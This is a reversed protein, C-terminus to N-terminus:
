PMAASDIPVVQGRSLVVANRLPAEVRAGPWVVCREVRGVGKVVAGRGVLSNALDVGESVTAGDAVWFGVGSSELWQLNANLYSELSGVDQFKETTVTPVPAGRRLRPLVLDGILCGRNPLAELCGHGLAMVGIYDVARVEAGFVEGRLRTVFGKADVGVTGRGRGPAVTLALGYERAAESLAELPPEALIDGNWVIVPAPGLWPKAGAVGGATGLIETEHVVRVPFGLAAFAASFHEPLHHTNVVLPQFGHRALFKMAGTVMPADGVPVLPKPLEFTLPQLRTGFGACLLMARATSDMTEM